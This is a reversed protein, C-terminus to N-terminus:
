ERLEALVFLGALVMSLIALALFILGIYFITSNSNLAAIMGACGAGVSLSFGAFSVRAQLIYKDRVASRDESDFSAYSSL